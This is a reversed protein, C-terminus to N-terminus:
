RPAFLLASISETTCCPGVADIVRSRSGMVTGPEVVVVRPEAALCARGPRGAMLSLVPELEKLLSAVDYDSTVSM